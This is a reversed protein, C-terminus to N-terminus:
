SAQVRKYFRFYVPDSIHPPMTAPLTFECFTPLDPSNGNTPLLFSHNAFPDIRASIVNRVVVDVERAPQVRSDECFMWQDSSRVFATDLTIDACAAGGRRGGAWM